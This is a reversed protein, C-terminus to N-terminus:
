SRAPNPGEPDIGYKTIAEKAYQSCSPSFRCCPRLYPSLYTQYMAILFLFCRKM